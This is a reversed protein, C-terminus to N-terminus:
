CYLEVQAVDHIHCGTNIGGIMPSHIFQRVSMGTLHVAQEAHQDKDIDGESVPCNRPFM